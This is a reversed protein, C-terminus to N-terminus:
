ATQRLLTVTTVCETNLLILTPEGAFIEFALRDTGKDRELRANFIGRTQLSHRMGNM